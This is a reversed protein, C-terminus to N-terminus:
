IWYKRKRERVLKLFGQCFNNAVIM